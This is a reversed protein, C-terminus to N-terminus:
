PAAVPPRAVLDFTVYMAPDLASIAIAPDPIGYDAWLLDYRGSLRLEDGTWTYTAPVSVTKTVDRITLPGTITVNGSGGGKKLAAVDGSIATARFTIAPFRTVELCYSQLRADRPGSGTRLGTTAIDLTGKGAVPDISGTIPATGTFDGLTAANHFTLTSSADFPLDAAMATASSLALAAGALAARALASGALTPRAISGPRAGTM